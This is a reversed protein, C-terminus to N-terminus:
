ACISLNYLEEQTYGANCVSVPEFHPKHYEKYYYDIAESATNCKSYPCICDLYRCRLKDWVRVVFYVGCVIDKKTTDAILAM